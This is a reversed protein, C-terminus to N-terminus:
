ENEYDGKFIIALKYLDDYDGHRIAYAIQVGFGLVASSKLRLVKWGKSWYIENRKEDNFEQEYTSHWEKSDVEIVIKKDIVAFDAHISGIKYQPKILLGAVLCDNYFTEELPSKVKLRTEYSM